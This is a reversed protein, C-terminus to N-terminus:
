ISTSACGLGVPLNFHTYSSSFVKRGCAVLTISILFAFQKPFYGLTVMSNQELLQEQL